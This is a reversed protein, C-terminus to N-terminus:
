TSHRRRALEQAYSDRLLRIMNVITAYVFHGNDDAKSQATAKIQELDQLQEDLSEIEQLFQEEIRGPELFRFFFVRTLFDLQYDYPVAPAKLAAFFAARGQDTLTYVHKNPKGTQVVVEKRVLGAHEIKRLAPYIQNLSLNYAMMMKGTITNIRYGTKPGSMLLGLIIAETEM